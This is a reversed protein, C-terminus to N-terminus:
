EDSNDKCKARLKRAASAQLSVHQTSLHFTLLRGQAGGERPRVRATEKRCPTSGSPASSAQEPSSRM